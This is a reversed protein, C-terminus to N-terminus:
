TAEEDAVVRNRIAEALAEDSMTHGRSRATM